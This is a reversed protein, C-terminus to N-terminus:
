PFNSIKWISISKESSVSKFCNKEYSVMKLAVLETERNKWYASGVRKIPSWTARSTTSLNCPRTEALWVSLCAIAENSFRNCSSRLHRRTTSVCNAFSRRARALSTMSALLAWCCLYLHLDNFVHKKKRAIKWEAATFRARYYTQKCHRLVCM